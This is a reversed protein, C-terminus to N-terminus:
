VSFLREVGDACLNSVVAMREYECDLLLFFIFRLIISFCSSFLLMLSDLPVREQFAAKIDDRCQPHEWFADFVSILLDIVQVRVIKSDADQSDDV